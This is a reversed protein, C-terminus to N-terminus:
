SRGLYIRSVNCRILTPLVLNKAILKAITSKGAAASGDIEIDIYKKM